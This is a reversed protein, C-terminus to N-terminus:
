HSSKRPLGSTLKRPPVEDEKTNGKQARLACFPFVALIALVMSGCAFPTQRPVAYTRDIFQITGRVVLGAACSGSLRNM